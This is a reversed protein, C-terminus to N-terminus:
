GINKRAFFIFKSRPSAYCTSLLNKALEYCTHLLSMVLVIDVKGYCFSFLGRTDIKASTYPVRQGFQVPSTQRLARITLRDNGVFLNQADDRYYQQENNGWGPALPTGDESISWNGIRVNWKARDLATGGFTDEWASQYLAAM